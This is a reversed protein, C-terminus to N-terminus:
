GARRHANTRVYGPLSVTVSVNKRLEENLSRGYCLRWGECERLDIIKADPLQVLVLIIVIRGAGREIKPLYYEILEM